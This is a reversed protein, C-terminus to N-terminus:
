LKELRTIASKIIWGEWTIKSLEKKYNSVAELLEEETEFPNIYNHNGCEPGLGFYQSVPNTIPRGCKMCIQMREELIEARLKMYYMGRTEKEITGVMIRLPMPNNENWKAMFDFSPTAQKTMYQRVEVVYDDSAKARQGASVNEKSKLIIITNENLVLDSPIDEVSNFVTSDIEVAGNWSNLFKLDSVKM